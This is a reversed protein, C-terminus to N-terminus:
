RTRKKAHGHRREHGVWAWMVVLVGAFVVASVWVIM